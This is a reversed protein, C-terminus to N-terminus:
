EAAEGVTAAAADADEAANDDNVAEGADDDTPTEPDAPTEADDGEGEGEDIDEGNKDDGGADEEAEAAEEAALEVYAPAPGEQLVARIGYNHVLEGGLHAAEALLVNAYVLAALFVLGTVTRPAFNVTSPKAYALVVVVLYAAAIVAFVNRAFESKEWHEEVVGDYLWEPDLMDVAEDPDIVDYAAEGSSTAAFAGAVGLVMLVLASFMMSRYGTISGLLVFLPAIALLAIPFHVLLPHFGDWAPPLEPLTPIM